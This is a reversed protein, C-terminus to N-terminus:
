DHGAGRQPPLATRLWYRAFKRYSDVAEQYAQTGSAPDRFNQQQIPTLWAKAETRRRPPLQQVLFPWWDSGSLASVRTAPFYGLMAQKLLLTVAPLSTPPQQQLQNLAANRIRRRRHRRVILVTTLVLLTVVLLALLYWGPALPWWSAAPATVIDNMDRLAAPSDIM